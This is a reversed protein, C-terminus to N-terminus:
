PSTVSVTMSGTNAANPDIKITYTGLATLNQQALDFSTACSNTSTLAAGGGPRLLSVTVCGGTTYTNNTVHVTGLQASSISFTLQANQGPTNTSVPVASGNITIAGTMDVVNYLNLVVSGTENYPGRPDVFLTYTGSTPLTTADIFITSSSCSSGSTLTSGDPNLISLVLNNCGGFTSNTALLSIRQGATGPFTFYANQGPTNITLNVAPGSPTITGTIDVINYLNVVVSGTFGGGTVLLTYTGSVPLTTTDIFITSSACAGGSNLTTGDPNLVSLVLNNCGGFTSNTGLVSIRQGSTGDFILLAIKGATGITVTTTSGMAIRSTLIVDTVQYPPPPVFFDGSSVANGMPTAVSIHGSTGTPPVSTAISTATVSGVTALTDNFKTRDNVPNLDFNTGNVTVATGPTGITPTFGTIAPLGSSATVTFSGSSTASGAPATVTIAGTTAGTPVAAVIQTPTASTVTAATGNFSVTNQSVTTSFATGNITVSAGVPGSKPTFSIISVAAASNRSISLLNGVADYNYTVADSLSDVAGVLRGLEDYVYTIASQGSLNFNATTTSGATVTVGTQSQTNYGSAAARVTYTAASLSAISYNGAADTTATGATTTVQLATIGAGSIPTIGDSKTVRGSITGPSPLAVNVTTSAGATVTNGTQITTGFGSASVRVDYSGPALNAITYTGDVATTVSAQVANSQLVEVLAGSIATAGSARSITGTISGTGVTFTVGNSAAGGVMVVVPGTTAGTPVPAVIRTDSWSSPTAAIGNFSLSSSGQTFGFASGTITVSAGVPGSAPSLATIVPAGLAINVTTSAGATVLNGSKAVASYGSANAWLDYVGPALSSISYSGDLASTASGKLSGSQLAEVLAGGIATGDSARTV